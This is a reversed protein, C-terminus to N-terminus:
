QYTSESSGHDLDQTEISQMIQNPMLQQAAGRPQSSALASQLPPLVTPASTSTNAYPQRTLSSMDASTTAYQQRGLSALDGHRDTSPLRFSPEDYHSSVPMARGVHNYSGAIASDLEQSGPFTFNQNMPMRSGVQPHVRYRVAAESAQPQPYQIHPFQSSSYNYSSDRLSSQFTANSTSWAHGGVDTHPSTYPSTTSSSNTRQHGPTLDSGSNFASPPIQGSYPQFGQTKPNYVAVQGHTDYFARRGQHHHEAHYGSRGGFDFSTRQRKHFSEAEETYREGYAGAPVSQAAPLGAPNHGNTSATSDISPRYDRKSLASRPEKRIRLRVGQDGFSRSLFTSDAMGPFNKNSYVTGTLDLEGAWNEPTLEMGTFPDSIVAKIFFVNTKVMEYLGFRLRYEGEVRVSLDGFVFFGGDATNRSDSNLDKLRHLSSVLNGALASQTKVEPADENSKNCLSVYMFLYPSQLFNQAPDSPDNVHLQVIPPPDVPKREKDKKDAVKAQKPGQRITLTFDESIPAMTLQTGPLATVFHQLGRSQRVEDAEQM